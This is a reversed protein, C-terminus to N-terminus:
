LNSRKSRKCKKYIIYIITGIFLGSSLGITFDGKFFGFEYASSCGMVPLLVFCILPYYKENNGKM